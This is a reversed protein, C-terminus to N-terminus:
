KQNILGGVQRHVDQIGFVGFAEWVVGLPTEHYFRVAIDDEFNM